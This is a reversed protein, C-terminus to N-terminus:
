FRLVRERKDYNSAQDHNLLIVPVTSIKSSDAHYQHFYSLLINYVHFKLNPINLKVQQFNHKASNKFLM